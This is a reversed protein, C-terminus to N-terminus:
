SVRVHTACGCKQNKHEKHRKHSNPDIEDSGSVCVYMLLINLLDAKHQPVFLALSCVATGSPPGTDKKQKIQEGEDKDGPLKQQHGM